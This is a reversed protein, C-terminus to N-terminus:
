VLNQSHTVQLWFMNEITKDFVVVFYRIFYNLAYVIYGEKFLLIVHKM